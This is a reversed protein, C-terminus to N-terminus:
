FLSLTYLDTPFLKQSLCTGNFLAELIADELNGHHRQSDFEFIVVLNKRHYLVDCLNDKIHDIWTNNVGRHKDIRNQPFPFTSYTIIFYRVINM